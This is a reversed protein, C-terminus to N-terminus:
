NDELSPLALISARTLEERLKQRDLIGGCVCWPRSRVLELFESDYAKSADTKGFFAVEFKLRKALPDLARIFANQNKRQCIIGVCVIRPISTGVSAGAVEFFSAHVANPVVWTKRALDQVAQETYHTICVVGRSRPLTFSELHASFAQISLH